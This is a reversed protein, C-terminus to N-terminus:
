RCSNFVEVIKNRGVLFSVLKGGKRLEYADVPKISVYVILKSSVIYVIQYNKFSDSKERFDYFVTLRKHKVFVITKLKLKLM